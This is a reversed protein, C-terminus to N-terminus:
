PWRGGMMFVILILRVLCGSRQQPLEYSIYEQPGRWMSSCLCSTWSSGVYLLGTGIRSTAKIVQQFCHVITLHPSLPDSIDTSIVRCSSSSSSSSSQKLWVLDSFGKLSVDNSFTLQYRGLQKVQYIICCSNRFSNHRQFPDCLSSFM